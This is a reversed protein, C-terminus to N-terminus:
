VDVPKPKTFRGLPKHRMLARRITFEQGAVGLEYRLSCEPAYDQLPLDMSQQEVGRLNTVDLLDVDLIFGVGNLDLKEQTGVIEVSEQFVDMEYDGTADFFHRANLWRVRVDPGIPAPAGTTFSASINAGDDSMDNTDHDFLFGAFNGAHVKEDILAACNREFGSYPGHWTGVDRGNITTRKQYNYVIIEDMNTQAAGDGTFPVFFWIENERPFWEAFAKKLRTRELKPWYGGDLAGSVKSLTSGGRWEYVGDELIMLQLDDPLAIISRGDIGARFTARQPSYPLSANGTPFLTFIGDSTHITLANQTPVLGQIIGGFNFFSTAGWTEIDATDSFWLQFTAGSVNGIWL